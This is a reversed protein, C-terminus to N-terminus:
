DLHLAANLRNGVFGAFANGRRARAVIGRGGVLFHGGDIGRVLGAHGPPGIRAARTESLLARPATGLDAEWACPPPDPDLDRRCYLAFVGAGSVVRAM